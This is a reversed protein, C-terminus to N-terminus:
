IKEERPQKARPPNTINEFGKDLKRRKPPPAALKNRNRNRAKALQRIKSIQEEEKDLDKQIEKEYKKFANDGLKCM